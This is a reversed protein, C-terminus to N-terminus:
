TARREPADAYIDGFVQLEHRFVELHDARHPGLHAAGLAGRHNLHWCRAARNGFCDCARPQQRVHHHAFVDIVQRQVPLRLDVCTLANVQIARGHGPPDPGHAGQHLRQDIRQAPIDNHCWSGRRRCWPEPEPDQRPCSWSRAVTPIREPHDARRNGPDAPPRTDICCSALLAGNRLPTLMSSKWSSGRTRAMSMAGAVLGAVGAVLVNSHTVQAAAVGLVLSATSVIGDNAGLVAARLWGTRETRHQEWHRPHM